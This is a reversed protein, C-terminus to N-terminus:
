CKFILQQATVKGKSNKYLSTYYCQLWEAQMPLLWLMHHVSCAWSMFTAFVLCSCHRTDSFARSLKWTTPQLQPTHGGEHFFFHDHNYLSVCPITNGAIAQFFDSGNRYSVIWAHHVAVFGLTIQDNELHTCKFVSVRWLLKTFTYAKFHCVYQSLDPDNAQSPFTFYWYFGKQLVDSHSTLFTEVNLSWWLGFWFQWGYATSSLESPLFTSVNHTKKLLPYQRLLIELMKIGLNRHFQVYM